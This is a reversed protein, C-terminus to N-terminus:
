PPDLPCRSPSNEGWWHRSPFVPRAGAQLRPPVARTDGLDGWLGSVACVDGAAGSWTGLVPFDVNWPWSSGTPAGLAGAPVPEAGGQGDRGKGAGPVDRRHRQWPWSPPSLPPGRGASDFCRFEVGPAASGARALRSSNGIEKWSCRWSGANIGSRGLSDRTILPAPHIKKSNKQYLQFPKLFFFFFREARQRRLFPKSLCFSGPFHRLIALPSEPSNEGGQSDNGVANGRRGSGLAARSGRPHPAPFLIRPVACICPFPSFLPIGIGAAEGDVSSAAGPSRLMGSPFPAALDRGHGGM